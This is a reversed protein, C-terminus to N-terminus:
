AGEYTPHVYDHYGRLGCSELASNVREQFNLARADPPTSSSSYCADPPTSSSSSSWLVKFVPIM